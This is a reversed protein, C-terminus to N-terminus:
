QFYVGELWDDGDPATSSWVGDAPGSISRADIEEDSGAASRLVAAQERKWVRELCLEETLPDGTERAARALRRLAEPDDPRMQVGEELATREAEHRGRACEVRSLHRLLNWRQEPRREHALALRAARAAQHLDGTEDRALCSRMWGEYLPVEQTEALRAAAPDHHFRDLALMYARQWHYSAVRGLLAPDNPSRDLSRRLFGLRREYMRAADAYSDLGIGIRDESSGRPWDAGGAQVGTRWAALFSAAAV